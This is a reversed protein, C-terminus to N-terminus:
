DPLDIDHDANSVIRIQISGYSQDLLRQTCIRSDQPLDLRQYDHAQERIRRHVNGDFGPHRDLVEADGRTLDVLGDEFSEPSGADDNRKGLALNSHNGGGSDPPM